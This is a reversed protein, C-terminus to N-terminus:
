NAFPNKQSHIDKIRTKISAAYRMTTSVNEHGLIDAVDKIGVDQSILYTALGARVRHSSKGFYKIFVANYSEYSLRNGVESYWLYEGNPYNSFYWEKLERATEKDLYVVGDKGGKRRPLYIEGTDWNINSVECSLAESARWGTSYACRIIFYNRMVVKYRGYKIFNTFIDKVTRIIEDHPIYVVEKKPIKIFPLKRTPDSVIHDHKYLFNFFSKLHAMYIKITYAQIGGLFLFDMYETCDECSVGRLDNLQNDHRNQLWLYFRNMAGEKTEITVKTYNCRIMYAKYKEFAKEVTLM